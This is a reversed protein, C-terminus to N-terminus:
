AGSHLPEALAPSRNKERWGFTLLFTLPVLAVLPLPVRASTYLPLWWGAQATARSFMLSAIALGLCALWPWALTAAALVLGARSATGHAWLMRWEKAILLAAPLVLVDNYPAFMPIVVVTVTTVVVYDGMEPGMMQTQWGFARTYFQAMRKRDQAPMEFHVVPNMTQSMCEESDHPSLLVQLMSMGGTYRRYDKSAALFDRMWGPLVAQSAALLVIITAAFGWFFRRRQRWNGTTWLLLVLVIPLVLQPKITALALLVGSTFHRGSVLQACAAAIMGAVLLSLQQLKFGQVVPFSGLVLLLYLLVEASELRWRLVRLWLLLSAVTVLVLGCKFAIAVWGFPMALTPALLFAVYVPYAFGQQDRPDAARSPDLERGYYGVQIERTVEPTYPNRHHLLLERSGHWRPYLDSLNGRPRQHATADARQYPVLINNVYFWMASACLFAVAVGMKKNNFLPGQVRSTM